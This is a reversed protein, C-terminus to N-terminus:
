KYVITNGFCAVGTDFLDWGDLVMKNVELLAPNANAIGKPTDKSAQMSKYDAGNIAVSLERFSPNYTVVAFETKTQATANFAVFLLFVMLIKKM